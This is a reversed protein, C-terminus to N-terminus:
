PLRSLRPPWIVYAAFYVDTQLSLAMDPLPALAASRARMAQPWHPM